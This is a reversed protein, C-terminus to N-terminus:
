EAKHYFKNIKLVTIEFCTNFTLLAVWYAPFVTQKQMMVTLDLLNIFHSVQTILGFCVYTEMYVKLPASKGWGVISWKNLFINSQEM